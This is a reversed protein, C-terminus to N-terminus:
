HFCLLGERVACSAPSLQHHNTSLLTFTDHARSPDHMMQYADKGRPDNTKGDPFRFLQPSSTGLCNDRDAWHDLPDQM